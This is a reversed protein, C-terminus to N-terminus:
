LTHHRRQPVIWAIYVIFPIKDEGARKGGGGENDNLLDDKKLIETLYTEMNLASDQIDSTYVMSMMNMGRDIYTQDWRVNCGIKGSSAKGVYYRYNTNRTLDRIRKLVRTQVIKSDWDGDIPKNVQYFANKFLTNDNWAIFVIYPPNDEALNGDSIKKNHIANKAMFHEILYAEMKLISDRNLSQYVLAMRNMREKKYKDNWRTRCSGEGATKGIWFKGNRTRTFASVRQLVRTEMKKDYPGPIPEHKYAFAVDFDTLKPNGVAM